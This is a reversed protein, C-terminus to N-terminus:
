ILQVLELPLFRSYPKLGPESLTPDRGKEAPTVCSEEFSRRTARGRGRGADADRDRMRMGM